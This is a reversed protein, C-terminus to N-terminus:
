FYESIIRTMEARDILWVSGAENDAPSGPLTATEVHDIGLMRVTNALLVFERLSFDSRVNRLVLGVIFPSKLLAQPSALSAALAKLFEQQREIRGIDGFADHRFRIYGEADNGSLKQVGPKLNIFLNQARDTYFMPKEVKIRVGGLLDVLKRLGATNVVVYRDIKVGTLGEVTQRTLEIKGLVFAANIKKYGYGPINVYSDRPISVMNAKQKLPDLHLLLITDSRGAEDSSNGHLTDFTMDTGLILINLPRDLISLKLPTPILTPSLLNFYWYIIGLLVVILAFLRLYDVHKKM